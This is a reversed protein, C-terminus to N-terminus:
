NKVYIDEVVDVQVSKGKKKKQLKKEIVIMKVDIKPACFTKKGCQDRIREFDGLEVQSGIKITFVNKICDHM